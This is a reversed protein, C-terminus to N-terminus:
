IRCVKNNQFVRFFMISLNYPSMYSSLLFVQISVILLCIYTQIYVYTTIIWTIINKLISIPSWCPLESMNTPGDSVSRTQALIILLLEPKLYLGIRHSLIPLLHLNLPPWYIVNMSIYYRNILLIIIYTLYSYWELM